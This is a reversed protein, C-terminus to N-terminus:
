GQIRGKRRALYIFFPTGILTTMVGAPIPQQQMILRGCIDAVLLLVAGYVMSYPLLWRHDNGVLTRVFHPVVLGVFVVPGAIAVSGGALFAIVIVGLLKVIGIKIGLGRAVDDGMMLVNMVRALGLALLHGAALFPFVPMALSLSRGEVSGTLWFLLEELSKENMTLLGQTLSSFLAMIAAGALTLKLPTMGDRGVSGLIYVLFISLAAGAFGAIMLPMMATVSFVAISLVIFLSAGQNVGLTAPSALPNRTLVQMIAGAVALSAGVAVAIVTRPVRTTQVILHDNNNQFHTFSKIIESLPIDTVGVSVSLVMFLGTLFLGLFLGTWKIYTSSFIEKAGTM